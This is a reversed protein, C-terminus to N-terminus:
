ILIDKKTFNIHSIIYAIIATITMCIIGNLITLNPNQYMLSINSNIVGGADAYTTFLLHSYDRISAIAQACITLFMTLIVSVAMSIMSSKFITSIMFVVSCASIIFICQYGISRLAFENNTVMKSTNPVQEMVMEQSNQDFQKEYKQEIRVPYSSADTNSTINVIAMGAVQPLVILSLVTIISVIFKSFLIKGRKVPQALLFKLTAPTCEGSVIDSMFVSIGAVLLGFRFFSGLNKFFNFETYEFGHLPMINNDKLYKYDELEQKSQAYWRKNWENIGNEEYSQVTIELDKITKDLEEKWADESIGNNIIEKNDEIQKLLNEEIEKSSNLWNKDGDAEARKIDNRIYTLQEEAQKIQYEPSIWERMTQDNKWTGFINIGVLGIFLIFVIWTKPRKFIKIFENKILSLM